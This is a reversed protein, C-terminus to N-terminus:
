CSKTIILTSALSDDSIIKRINSLAIAKFSIAFM